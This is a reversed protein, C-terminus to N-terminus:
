SMVVWSCRSVSCFCCPFLWCHIFQRIDAVWIWSSNNYNKAHGFDQLKVGAIGEFQLLCVTIDHRIM